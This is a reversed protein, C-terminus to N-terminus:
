RSKARMCRHVLAVLLVSVLILSAIALNTALLGVPAGFIRNDCVHERTKPRTASSGLTM